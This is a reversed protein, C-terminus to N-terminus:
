CPTPDSGITSQSRGTSQLKEAIRVDSDVAKPVNRCLAINVHNKPIIPSMESRALKLAEMREKQAPVNKQHLILRTLSSFVLLTPMLGYPGETDNEAKAATKMDDEKKLSPVDDRVGRYINRLYSYYREGNGLGNHSEVGTPQVHFRTDHLLSLLERRQFQTDQDLSVCEPYRVYTSVWGNEFEKWVYSATDGKLFCAVGFKKDRDVIHLVSSSELSIIEM